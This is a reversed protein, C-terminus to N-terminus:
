RGQGSLRVVVRTGRHGTIPSSIELDAGIREAREQMIQLGHSDTRRPGLGRGDDSVEIEAAPPAIRCRLWLNSAGAHKRANNMAEQAIRVLQAEVDPALREGVEDLSVHVAMSSRAGIHQAITSLSEGIGRHGGVDHRLDFVSHRLENVVRSIEARLKDIQNAQEPSDPVVTDVLYGLSAVDQAIGDHVERALRHREEQTASRRIEAFLLAAHLKLTEPSLAHGVDALEDDSPVLDSDAVLVALVQGDRMLPLAFVPGQRVPARSWWAREAQGLANPLEAPTSGPAYRLATVAGESTTAFLAASRTPLLQGFEALLGDSITPVDLGDTLRDSMRHLQKILDVAGRYSTVTASEAVLQQMSSGLFGLGLGTLLWLILQASDARTVDDALNLGVFLAGAEILLVRLVGRMRDALGALLAPIVLYPVVAENTPTNAAAILGVAAAELTAVWGESFRRTWSLVEAVLATLVVLLLGDRVGSGLLAAIAGLAALTFVRAALAVRRVDTV